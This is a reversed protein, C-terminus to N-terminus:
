KEFVEDHMFSIFRNRYTEPDKCSANHQTCSKWKSELWKTKGFYTLIDVVGIFYIYKNERHLFMNPKKECQKKIDSITKSDPSLTEENSKIKHIGLLLSYDMLNNNNCFDATKKIKELIDNHDNKNLFVKEQQDLWNLDKRISFKNKGELDKTRRGHFSGKLDYTRELGYAAEFINKMVQLHITQKKRGIYEIDLTILGLFSGLLTKPYKKIHKHYKKVIGQFCNFERQRITKIMYRGDPTYYFFSGSQGSTIQEVLSSLRGNLLNRLFRKPGISNQYDKSSIGLRKRIDYFVYPYWDVLTGKLVQHKMHRNNVPKLEFTNKTTYDFDTIVYQNVDYLANISKFMGLTIFVIFTWKEDNMGIQKKDQSKDHKGKQKDYNALSFLKTFSDYKGDNKKLHDKYYFQESINQEGSLLFMNENKQPIEDVFQFEKLIDELNNLTVDMKQLVDNFIVGLDPKLETFKCPSSRKENWSQFKIDDFAIDSVNDLEGTKIIQKNDDIFNNQTQTAQKSNLEKTMIPEIRNKVNGFKIKMDDGLFESVLGKPAERNEQPEKKKLKKIYTLKHNENSKISTQDSSNDDLPTQNGLEQIEFIPQNDITLTKKQLVTLTLPKSTSRPLKCKQYPPNNQDYNPKVHPHNPVTNCRHFPAETSSVKNIENENLRFKINEYLKLFGKNKKEIHEIYSEKKPSNNNLLHNKIESTEHLTCRDNDYNNFAKNKCDLYEQPNRFITECFNKVEIFDNKVNNIQTLCCKLKDEDYMHIIDTSCVSFLLDTFTPDNESIKIYEDQTIRDDSVTNFLIFLGDVLYDILKDVNRLSLDNNDVLENINLLLEFLSKLEDKTFYNKKDIDVLYFNFKLTKMLNDSYLIDYYSVYDKFYMKNKEKCVADYIRESIKYMSDSPIMCINEVFTKKTIYNCYCVSNNKTSVSLTNQPNENLTTLELLELFKEKFLEIKPRDLEVNKLIEEIYDNGAVLDSLHKRQQPTTSLDEKSSSSRIKNYM